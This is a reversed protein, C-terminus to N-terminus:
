YESVDQGTRSPSSKPTVLGIGSEPFCHSNTGRVFLSRPQCVRIIGTLLEVYTKETEIFDSLPNIKKKANGDAGPSLPASAQSDMPSVPTIAAQPLGSVFSRACHSTSPQIARVIDTGDNPSLTSTVIPPLRNNARQSMGAGQVHTAKPPPAPVSSTNDFHDSPPLPPLRDGKPSPLPKSGYSTVPVNGLMPIPHLDLSLRSFFTRSFFCASACICTTAPVSWAQPSQVLFREQRAKRLTM